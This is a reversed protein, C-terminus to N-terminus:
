GDHGRDAQRMRWVRAGARYGMGRARMLLMRLAFMWSDGGTRTARRVADLDAGEAKIPFAVAKFYIDVVRGTERNFMGGLRNTPTAPFFVRRIQFTWGHRRWTVMIPEAM